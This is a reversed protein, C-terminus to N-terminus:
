KNLFRRVFFYQENIAMSVSIIVCQMMVNTSHVCVFQECVINRAYIASAFPIDFILFSFFLVHSVLQNGAFSCVFARLLPAASAINAAMRANVCICEIIYINAAAAYNSSVLIM